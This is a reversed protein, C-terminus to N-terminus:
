PMHLSASTCVPPWHPLCLTASSMGCDESRWADAIDKVDSVQKVTYKHM